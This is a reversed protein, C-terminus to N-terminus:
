GPSTSSRTPARRVLATLDHREVDLSVWQTRPPRWRPMRRAIGIIETVREDAALASVVSTGVNGTAGTVVVRM